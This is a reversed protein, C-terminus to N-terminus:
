SLSLHRSCDRSRSRLEPQPNSIRFPVIRLKARPISTLTSPPLARRGLHHLRHKRREETHRHADLVHRLRFANARREARLEVLIVHGVLVREDDSRRRAAPAITIPLVLVGSNAKPGLLVLAINPAVRFGYSRRQFRTSDV